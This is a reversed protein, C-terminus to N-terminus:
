KTEKEVLEKFKVEVDPLYRYSWAYKGFDENVALKEYHTYGGDIMKSYALSELPLLILRIKHVGYCFVKGKMLQEYLVVGGVRKVFKYDYGNVRFTEPISKIKKITNETM